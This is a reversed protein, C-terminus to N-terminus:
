SPLLSGIFDRQGRLFDGAAMIRKGELQLQMIGLMDEGACVAVPAPGGPGLPVVKGAPGQGRVPTAEIIKLSRGQWTTFSGPWPNYARVRRWLDGAPLTWDIRGSDKSIPQSYTAKSENQIEPTLREESWLLLTPILLQAGIRSLETTLTGTTDNEAIPVKVQALMPGTDMGKDLLMITVGTVEDGSLIASAVPSAGRHRPLLSPHVNLCGLSPVALIQEPLILGYAAVIVAEPSLAKLREWEELSRLSRPQHVALGYQLAKEKVPSAM